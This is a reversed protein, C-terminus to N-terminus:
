SKCSFARTRILIRWIPRRKLHLRPAIRSFWIRYYALNLAWALARFVSVRLRLFIKKRSIYIDHVPLLNGGMRIKHEYRSRMSDICTINEELAKKVLEAFIVRGLSVHRLDPTDSRADLFELYMEGFRYAYKYGLPQGALAVQLLRLRNHKLQAQALERHFEIARPWDAFHGAKGISQWHAQHMRVFDDFMNQFNRQSAFLSVVSQAEGAFAKAAARYNRRIEGRERKTLGALFEDYTGPLEFYTQVNSNISQVLYSDRFFQQCLEKIHAQYKYKGSFPGLHIIDCNCDDLYSRFRSIVDALHPSSIPLSVTTISSDTGVLKAARIWAPGLWIKEFFLPIIAVLDGASRFVLISLNRKKGYYKWWLRCWDYTLYIECGTSAVFNDWEPQMSALEEFNDFLEVQVPVQAPGAQVIEQPSTTKQSNAPNEAM